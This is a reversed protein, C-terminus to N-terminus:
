KQKSIWKILAAIALIILSLFLFQYLFSLWGWGYFYNSQGMMGGYGMMGGMGMMGSGMMGESGMMGYGSTGSVCGLYRKGMLIHAAKLSQSGEGGMMQDMLEHEQENPHMVSMVSDGLKEFQEDSVKDCKVQSTESVNQSTKIESLVSDLSTGSNASVLVPAIFIISAIVLIFNIKKM